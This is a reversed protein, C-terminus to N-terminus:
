FSKKWNVVSLEVDSINIDYVLNKKELVECWTGVNEKSSTTRNPEVFTM